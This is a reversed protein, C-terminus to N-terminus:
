YFRKPQIEDTEIWVLTNYLPHNFPNYSSLGVEMFPNRAKKHASKIKRNLLKAYATLKM